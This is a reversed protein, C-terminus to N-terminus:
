APELAFGMVAFDADLGFVCAARVERAVASGVADAFSLPLGDFRAMVAFAESRLGADSERVRLLGAGTAADLFDRFRLAATLGDDYRLRTATEALVPECTVLDAREERLRRLHGAVREHHQDRRLALALFAGTDVYVRRV